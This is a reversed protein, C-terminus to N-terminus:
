RLGKLVGVNTFDDDVSPGAVIFDFVGQLHRGFDVPLGTVVDEIATRAGIFNM